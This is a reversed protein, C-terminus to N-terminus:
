VDGFSQSPQAIASELLGEDRVGPLGGFRELSAAHIAVVEDRTLMRIQGSM